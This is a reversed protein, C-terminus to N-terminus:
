VSVEDHGAGQRSEITPTGHNLTEIGSSHVEDTLGQMGFVRMRERAREVVERRCQVERARDAWAAALRWKRSRMGMGGAQQERNM